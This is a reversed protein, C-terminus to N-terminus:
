RPRRSLHQVLLELGGIDFRGGHRNELILGATHFTIGRGVKVKHTGFAPATDTITQYRWSTVEDQVLTLYLGDDERCSIYIDHLRKARTSGFTQPSFRVTAPIPTGDDTDGELKILNGDRLGYLRGHATILKDFTGILLQTVAGSDLNIAYTTELSVSGDSSLLSLSPLILEAQVVSGILGTSTLELVPLEVSITAITGTFANASLELSPLTLAVSAIHTLTGSSIVIPIPLELLTTVGSFSQINLGPLTLAVTSIGGSIATATLELAPLTLSAAASVPNTATAVLMVSPLTLRAQVGGYTALSPTPLRLTIEATDAARGTSTLLTTPLELYAYANDVLQLATAQWTPWEAVLYNTLQIRGGAELPGIGAMGVVRSSDGAIVELPGIGIEGSTTDLLGEYSFVHLPGLGAFGTSLEPVLSTLDDGITSLPGVQISGFNVDGEVGQAKLLVEPYGHNIDAENSSVELPGVGVIKGNFTGSDIAFVSLPGISADVSLYDLALDAASFTADIVSDLYAYLSCDGFFTGLSIRTSEYIFLDDVFYRFVGNTRTIKFVAGPSFNFQATKTVGNEIVRYKHGEIYFAYDIEKYGANNDQRNLGCVIGGSKGVSFTFAGDGSLSAVTRAGADWGPDYTIKISM